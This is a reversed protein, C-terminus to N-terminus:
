CRRRQRQVCLWRLMRACVDAYPPPHRRVKSAGGSGECAYGGSCVDAYTLMRWCVDAYTLMRKEKEKEKEAVLSTV